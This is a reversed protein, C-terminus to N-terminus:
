YDVCTLTINEIGDSYRLFQNEKYRPNNKIQIFPFKNNKVAFECDFNVVYLM